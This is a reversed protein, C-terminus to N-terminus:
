LLVLSVRIMRERRRRTKKRDNEIGRRKMLDEQTLTKYYTYIISCSHWLVNTNTM